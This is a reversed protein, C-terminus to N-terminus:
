YEGAPGYGTGNYKVLGLGDIAPKDSRTTDIVVGDLLLPAEYGEISKLASMFAARNPEEMKQFAQDLVAGAVWGWACQPTFTTTITSGYEDFAANYAIVDEDEAFAPSVPVKSLSTSYVAPYAAGNGPVVVTAPTSTNSPLSIPRSCTPKLRM